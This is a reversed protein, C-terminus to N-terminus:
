FCVILAHIVGPLVFLLCLILNIWCKRNWTGESLFVALFPIVFCLILILIDFLSPLSNNERYKIKAKKSQNAVVKKEELSVNNEEVTSFNTNVNKKSFEGTQEIAETAVLQDELQSVSVNESELIVSKLQEKDVSVYEEKEFQIFPKRVEITEDETSNKIKGNPNYFFGKNVKRKSLIGKSVVSNSTVCSSLILSITLSILLSIKLM